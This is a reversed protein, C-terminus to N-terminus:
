NREIKWVGVCFVYVCVCVCVCLNWVFLLVCMYMDTGILNIATPLVGCIDPGACASPRYPKPGVVKIFQFNFFNIIARGESM